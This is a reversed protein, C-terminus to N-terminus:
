KCLKTKNERTLASSYAVSIVPELWVKGEADGKEEHIHAPENNGNSYFFFRYRDVVTFNWFCHAMSLVACLEKEL